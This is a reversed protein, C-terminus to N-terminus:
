SRPDRDVFPPRMVQAPLEKGRVDVVVEDGEAVGVDLYGMAIGVRLTPSFTGSTTEGLDGGVAGRVACHARPVGRALAKLGWMRRSPGSERARVYADEGRFGTGPKVAWGLRAEVPSTDISIDQGHLPYGMELRLTDRCGLGAPAAGAATVRDWVNGAREAPCFVEFGREGTYGTRALVGAAPGGPQGGVADPGPSPLDLVRCDLYSLDGGDIGATALVEVSRQGQVAICALSDKVDTVRCDRGHACDRLADLVHAANAANPVVFFGWDLHYVLLDDIIGGGDDLCLTYHARGQALAAVDNTFAGQVCAQADPGTVAITGLHSLDFAGCAERVATHEAVVSGYDLPMEWGGFGTLTAGLARHRDDLPSRRLAAM